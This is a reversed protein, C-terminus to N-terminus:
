RQAQDKTTGQATALTDAVRIATETQVQARFNTILEALESLTEDHRDAITASTHEREEDVARRIETVTESQLTERLQDVARATHRACRREVIVAVMAVFLAVLVATVLAATATM